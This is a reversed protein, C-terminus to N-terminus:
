ALIEANQVIVFLEEQGLEQRWAEKRALMWKQNAFTDEIFLEIMYMIEKYLKNTKESIWVGQIFPLEAFPALSYGGFQEIIEEAIKEIKEYEIERGDNYKKPLFIRYLKM